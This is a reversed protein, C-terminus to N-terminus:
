ASKNCYYSIFVFDWSMLLDDRELIYIFGAVVKGKIGSVYVFSQNEGGAAPHMNETQVHRQFCLEKTKTRSFIATQCM